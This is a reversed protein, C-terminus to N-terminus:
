TEIFQDYSKKHWCFYDIECIEQFGMKRYLGKGMDSAQLVGTLYGRNKADLLLASTIARGVGRRGYKPLVNVLYIGAVGASFFILAIAIVKGDLKGTYFTLASDGILEFLYDEEFFWSGGTIVSIWLRLDDRDEVPSICVEQGLVPQDYFNQLDIAMGPRSVGLSNFGQRKLIDRLDVPRAQPGVKMVPPILGRDIQAGIEGLRQTVTSPEFKPSFLFNPWSPKAMVWSIDSEVVIDKNGQEGLYVFLDRENDELANIALIRSDSQLSVKNV